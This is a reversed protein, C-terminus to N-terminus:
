LYRQIADKLEDSTVLREFRIKEEANVMILTTPTISLHYKRVYEPRESIDFERVPIGIQEAVNKILSKQEECGPCGEHRFWHILIGMFIRIVILCIFTGNAAIPSFVSL